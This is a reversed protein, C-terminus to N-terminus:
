VDTSDGRHGEAAKIRQNLPHTSHQLIALAENGVVRLDASVDLNVVAPTYACYSDDGSHRSERPSRLDCVLRLGLSGLKQKDSDTLYAPRGSRYLVGRRVRRGDPCALGGLDRFNPVGELKM